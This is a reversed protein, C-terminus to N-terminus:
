QDKTRKITKITVEDAERRVNTVVGYVGGITVVRDNKKVGALMAKRNAQERKNHRLVIFYFVMFLAVVLLLQPSFILDAASPGKGEGEPEVLAFLASVGALRLIM